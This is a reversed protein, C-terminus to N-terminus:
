CEGEKKLFLIDFFGLLVFSYFAGWWELVM